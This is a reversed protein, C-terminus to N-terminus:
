LLSGTRCNVAPACTHATIALFDPASFRSRTMKPVRAPKRVSNYTNYSVISLKWVDRCSTKKALFNILYILVRLLWTHLSNPALRWCFSFMEIGAAPDAVFLFCRCSRRGIQFLTTLLNERACLASIPTRPVLLCFVLSKTSSNTNLLVLLLLMQPLLPLQLLPILLLPLNHPFLRLPPRHPSPHAGLSHRRQSLRRVFRGM